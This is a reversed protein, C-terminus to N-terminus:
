SVEGKVPVTIKRRARRLIGALRRRIQRQTIPALRGWARAIPPYNRLEALLQETVEDCPDTM